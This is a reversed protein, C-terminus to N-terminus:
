LLGHCFRLDTARWFLKGSQKRVIKSLEAAGPSDKFLSLNDIGKLILWRDLKPQVFEL